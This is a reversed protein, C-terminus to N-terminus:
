KKRRRRTTEVDNRPLDKKVEETTTSLEKVNERDDLEVYEPQGRNLTFIPRRLSM